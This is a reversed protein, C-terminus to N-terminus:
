KTVVKAAFGGGQASTTAVASTKQVQVKVKLGNAQM